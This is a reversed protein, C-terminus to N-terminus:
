YFLCFVCNKSKLTRDVVCDVWIFQVNLRKWVFEFCLDGFLLYFFPQSVIKSVGFDVAFSVKKLSFLLCIETKVNWMNEAWMLIKLCM